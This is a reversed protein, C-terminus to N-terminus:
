SGPPPTRRSSRSRTEPSRDYAVSAVATHAGVALERVLRDHTGADGTIM